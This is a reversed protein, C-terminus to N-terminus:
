LSYSYLFNESRSNKSSFHYYNPFSALQSGLGEERSFVYHFTVKDQGMITPSPVTNLHKLSNYLLIDTRISM